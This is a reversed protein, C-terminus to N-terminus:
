EEEKYGVEALVQEVLWRTEASVLDDDRISGYVQLLEILRDPDAFTAM